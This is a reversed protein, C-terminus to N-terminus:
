PAGVAGGRGGQRCQSRLRQVAGGTQQQQVIQVDDAGRQKYAADTTAGPLVQTRCAADRRHRRPLAGQRNAIPMAQRTPLPSPLPLPLLPSLASPRRYSPQPPSPPPPPPLAAEQPQQQRMPEHRLRM